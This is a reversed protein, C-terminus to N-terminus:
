PLECVRYFRTQNAELPATVTNTTGNGPVASVLNSWSGAVGESVQVDYLKEASSPWRLQVAPMSAAAIVNTQSATAYTLAVDDILVGGYGNLVAGTASYFEILANVATAPAVVNNVAVQSWFGNGATFGSWGVTGVTGGTSNLWSIRYNQVYSVGSSVQRAWFSFNYSQGGVVPIGGQTKVNQNVASTNPTAAANTVFLQLSYSGGHADVNLRTPPQSGSFNWNSAILGAGSEFGGNVIISSSGLTSELVQYQQHHFPWLVDFFMNTAGNGATPGALDVWAVNTGSADASQLAWTTNNATPWSVQAGSTIALRFQSPANTQGEIKVTLKGAPATVADVPTGLHYITATQSAATPNYIVYTRRGTATNYYVQSTPLSTYYDSDQDGLARLAHTLYYTVGSYTTDTAIAANNTFAANVIAAVGSPDFLTQYGLIYNGLYGGQSTANNADALTFGNINHASAIVRENWMNTLQWAAFAKDRALYNNWHNAPVWQIGYIWAPDGNFYTGYTLGGSWLIGVMGKGYSAPLNTRYMDQWYENVASSEVAYGMAGAASMDADGLQNGLLFLGVWSNM